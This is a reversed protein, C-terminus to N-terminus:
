RPGVFSTMQRSLNRARAHLSRLAPFDRALRPSCLQWVREARSPVLRHERLDRSEFGSELMVEASASSLVVQGGHAVSM